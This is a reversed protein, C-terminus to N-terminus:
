YKGQQVFQVLYKQGPTYTTNNITQTLPLTISGNVTVTYNATISTATSALYEVIFNYGQTIDKFRTASQVVKNADEYTISKDFNDNYRGSFTLDVNGGLNGVAIVINGYTNNGKTITVSSIVPDSSPVTRVVSIVQSLDVDEQIASLSAPSLEIAM